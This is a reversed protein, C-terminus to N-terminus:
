WDESVAMRRGPKTALSLYLDGERLMLEREVFGDLIRRLEADGAPNAGDRRRVGESVAELGSIDRCVAYAAAEAGSLTIRDERRCQRDDFIMVKNGPAEVATLSPPKRMWERKWAQVQQRLPELYGPVAKKGPHDFEFFCAIADLDQQEFPYIARYGKHARVHTMGWERHNEFLPSFRVALVPSVDMPPSLHVISSILAAMRAYAEPNEGPFGYLLNWTPTVGYERACKLFRINQLLTTGKRMYSLM